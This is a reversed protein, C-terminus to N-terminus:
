HVKTKTYKFGTMKAFEKNILHWRIADKRRIATTKDKSGSVYKALRGEVNKRAIRYANEIKKMSPTSVTKGNKYNWGKGFNGYDVGWGKTPRQLSYTYKGTVARIEKVNTRISGIIDDRSLSGGGDARDNGHNKGQLPHNHTVIRDKQLENPIWVRGEKQDSGKWILRGNDDFIAGHEVSLNRISDEHQRLARQLGGGAGGSRTGGSGKAM